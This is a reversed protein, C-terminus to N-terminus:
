KQRKTKADEKILRELEDIDKEIAKLGAEFFAPNRTDIGIDAFIDEPAKSKGAKFVDKIQEASLVGENYKESLARSIIGGYAYSYVYFFRRFHSVYMFYYGVIDEYEFVPGTYAKLHKLAIAAMEVHSIQGHERIQQHLEKEINFFTIQRFITGMDDSIRDHLAVIKEKLSLKEYIANFFLNEFFTSATEATSITYKGNLPTQASCSYESHFAHGAEHALTSVSNFSDTHNLLLLPPLGYVSWNYAGGRKGKKPFVDILGQAAYGDLWTKCQPDFQEFVDGIQKLSEKFTYKRKVTGIESVRDVNHLKKQGLIKAKLAYFRKSIDFRKTVLDVLSEVVPMENEYAVVTREYPTKAGRLEDDIKKFTYIANIEMEAIPAISVLTDMVKKHVVLREKRPKESLMGLAEAFPVERKKHMITQSALLKGFGREWMDNAPEEVRGLITEEKESLNYKAGRFVKSLFYHYNKLEASKLLTKKVQEPIKGISLNMFRVHEQARTHRNTYQVLKASVQADESDRQARNSVYYLPKYPILPLAEYAKLMELMKKPNSFYADKGKYKKEFAAATKEIAQMDKELQPDKISKYLHSLDWETKIKQKTKKTM